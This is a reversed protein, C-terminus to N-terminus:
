DEESILEGIRLLILKQVEPSSNSKKLCKLMSKLTSINMGSLHNNMSETQDKRMRSDDQSCAMSQEQSSKQPTTMEDDKRRSSQNGSRQPTSKASMPLFEDRIDELIHGMHNKGPYRPRKFEKSYVPIGTGWFRDFCAEELKYGRTNMLRIKLDNNEIFKQKVICRVLGLKTDDWAKKPPIKDGLKKVDEAKMIQKIQPGLDERECVISKKYQIAHEASPFTYDDVTVPCQYFNSLYSEESMFGVRDGEIRTKLDDPRIGVPLAKLHEAGFSMNNYILKDGNMSCTIGQDEARRVIERMVGRTKRTRPPLDENVWVNRTNEYDKLKKRGRLIEDRAYKSFLEVIIERTKGSSSSGMRYACDVDHQKIHPCINGLINVVKVYISENMEEPVGSIVLNRRKIDKELDDIVLDKKKLEDKHAATENQVMHVSRQIDALQGCLHGLEYDVDEVQETNVGVNKIMCNHGARIKNVSERITGLNDMVVKLNDTLKKQVVSLKSYESDTLQVLPDLPPCEDIPELELRRSADSNLSDRSDKSGTSKSGASKSRSRSSHKSGNSKSGSRSKRKSDQGSAITGTELVNKPDIDAGLDRKDEPNKGSKDESKAKNRSRHSMSKALYYGCEVCAQVIQVSRQTYTQGCTVLLSESYQRENGAVM